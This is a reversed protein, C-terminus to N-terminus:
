DQEHLYFELCSVCWVAFVTSVKGQGDSYEIIWASDSDPQEHEDTYGPAEGPECSQLVRAAGVGDFESVVFREVSAYEDKLPVSYAYGHTACGPSFEIEGILGYNTPTKCEVCPLAPTFHLVTNSYNQQSM